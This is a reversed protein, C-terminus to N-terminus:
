EKEFESREKGETIDFVEKGNLTPTGVNNFAQESITGGIYFKEKNELDNPVHYFHTAKWDLNGDVVILHNSKEGVLRADDTSFDVFIAFQPAPNGMGFPTFKSLEELAEPIESSSIYIYNVKEDSARKDIQFERGIDFESKKMTMGAAGAHGGLAVFNAGCNLLYELINVDAITRSSGKLMGNELETLVIAPVKYDEVLKGALIGVIGEHLGSAEVWIPSDNEYGNENIIDVIKQYQEDRLAKREDNIKAIEMAGITSPALLYKLVIAGGNDHLRGPANLAPGLYYGIMDEDCFGADQNLAALLMLIQPPAQKRRIRNIAKRVLAWNGKKLSVCDAITAIGAFVEIASKTSDDVYQEAIKLAVGAGCWYNGACLIDHGELSPDLIFSVSPLKKGTFVHHDTIAVKYGAKELAILKDGASIGNDVTVILTGPEDKTKIEDVISQNIGYGESFRRPIRIKIKKDPFVNKISTAMIYSACIGDVDYDGVIRVATSEEVLDWFRSVTNGDALYEEKRWKEYDSFHNGSLAEVEERIRQRLENM